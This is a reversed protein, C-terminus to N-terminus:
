GVSLADAFAMPEAKLVFASGSWEEGTGARGM